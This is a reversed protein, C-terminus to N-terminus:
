KKLLFSVRKGSKSLKEKGMPTKEILIDYLKQIKIEVESLREAYQSTTSMSNIKNNIIEIYNNLKDIEVNEHLLIETKMDELDDKYILEHKFIRRDIINDLIKMKEDGKRFGL